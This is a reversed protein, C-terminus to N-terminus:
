PYRSALLALDAIWGVREGGEVGAAQAALARMALHAAKLGGMDMACPMGGELQAMYRGDAAIWRLETEPKKGSLLSDVSKGVDKHIRWKSPGLLEILTTFCPAGKRELQTKKMFNSNRVAQDGLIVAQIGGVLPNLEPNKLISDLSTGHATGVLAVGRQAITKAAAVEYHDAIEDIIVVDPNHNQVAEKMVEHQRDRHPVMMRRAKGICAHPISGEGAIENSTDVVVVRKSFTNALIRAVDRLLTSKGVGPPGLLLLSPTTAATSAAAATIDNFSYDTAITTTINGTGRSVHALLDHVLDGIGELHRGIRYTLGLVEHKRGRIASIRHLTGPIGARNDSSFIDSNHVADGYPNMERLTDAGATAVAVATGTAPTDATAPFDVSGGLGAGGIGLGLRKRANVLLNLAEAVSFQLSDDLFAETGDSFRVSIPRGIDVLIEIPWKSKAPMKPTPSTTTTVKLGAVLEGEEEEEEEEEEEMNDEDPGRYTTNCLARVAESIETPFLSLVTAVDRNQAPDDDTNSTTPSNSSFNKTNVLNGDGNTSTTGSTGNMTINSMERPAILYTATYFHHSDDFTVHLPVGHPLRHVDSTPGGSGSCNAAGATSGEYVNYSKQNEIFHTESYAKSMKLVSKTGETGLHATLTKGLQYLHFTDHSIFDQITRPLPRRQFNQFNSNLDMDLKPNRQIGYDVFINELSRPLAFGGSGGIGKVVQLVGHAVQADFVHHLNIGGQRYLAPGLWRCDHFFILTNNISRSSGESGAARTTEFIKTKLLKWIERSEPQSTCKFDFMWVVGTSGSVSLLDIKSSLPNRPDSPIGIVSIGDQLLKIQDLAQQAARRTEIIIPGSWITANAPPPPQVPPQPAALEANIAAAAAAPTIRGAFTIPLPPHLGVVAARKVRSSELTQKERIAGAAATGVTVAPHKANGNGNGVLSNSILKMKPLLLQLNIICKEHQGAQFNFKDTLIINRAKLSMIVEKFKTYDRAAAGTKAPMGTGPQKRQMKNYAKTGPEPVLKAPVRRFVSSLMVPRQTYVVNMSAKGKNSANNDGPRSSFGLQFILAAAAVGVTKNACNKLGQKSAVLVHNEIAMINKFSAYPVTFHISPLSPDESPLSDVDGNKNIDGSEDADEKEDETMATGSYNEWEYEEDGGDKQKCGDSTMMLSKLNLTISSSDNILDETLTVLGLLQLQDLVLSPNANFIQFGQAANCGGPECRKQLNRSFTHLDVSCASFTFDDPRLNKTELGDDILSYVAARLIATEKEGAGNVVSSIQSKLYSKAALGTKISSVSYSSPEAM